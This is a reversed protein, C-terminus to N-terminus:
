VEHQDFRTAHVVPTLGANEPWSCTNIDSYKLYYKVNDLNGRAAAHLLRMEAYYKYAYGTITLESASTGFNILLMITAIKGLFINM